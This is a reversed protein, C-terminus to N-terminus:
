LEGGKKQSDREKWLKKGQSIANGRRIKKRGIKKGKGGRKKSPPEGDLDRKQSIGSKEGKALGREL